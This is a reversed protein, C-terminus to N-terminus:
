QEGDGLLLLLQLISCTILLIQVVLVSHQLVDCHLRVFMAHLPLLFIERGCSWVFGVKLRFSLDQLHNLSTRINIARLRVSILLIFPDMFRLCLISLSFFCQKRRAMSKSLGLLWLGAHFGCRGRRLGTSGMEM